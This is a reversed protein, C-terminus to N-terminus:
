PTACLRVRSFRSLLLLMDSGAAATTLQSRQSRHRFRRSCGSGPALLSAAAHNLRSSRGRVGMGGVDLGTLTLRDQLELPEERLESSIVRLDTACFEDVNEVSDHDSTRFVSPKPISGHGLITTAQSQNQSLQFSMCTHSHSPKKKEAPHNSYSGFVRPSNFAEWSTLSYGLGPPEQSPSLTSGIQAIPGRAEALLPQRPPSGCFSASIVLLTLPIISTRRTNQSFSLGSFFHTSGCPLHCPKLVLTLQSFNVPM